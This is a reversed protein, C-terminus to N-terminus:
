RSGLLAEPGSWIWQRKMLSIACSSAGTNVQIKSYLMAVAVRCLTHASAYAAWDELLPWPAHRLVVPWNGQCTHRTFNQFRDYCFVTGVVQLSM